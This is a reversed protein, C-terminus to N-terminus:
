VRNFLMESETSLSSIVEGNCSSDQNLLGLRYSDTRKLLISKVKKYNTWRGIEPDSLRALVNKAANEDAQYVDGSESYFQDGRRIGTFCRTRHDIQSTYSANVLQLSSSRRRSVTNLAEAIVGKTWVSLKRNMNKGFSRSSMPATLDEAVITRAKDILRHTATFILTRLAKQIKVKRSGLKKRGFNNGIIRAKKAPDSEEAIQFLKNRAQYKAKLYDSEKSIVDGLGQGYHVGDSDVFVETFGKDIGVVETGCNDTEEVNVVYHVEVKDSRLIIRLTGSPEINSSLPIAIRKGKVLGPISIWANGNRQFTMYNDSRVIIQNHTHNHGRKWYKRMIRALYKGTTWKNFKLLTYLRKQEAEDSTRRKIAQRAKVKASERNMSIDAIADRLTEKWANASLPSFDHGDKLWQDRIDRDRLGIGSVSGFRQWVESRVQGLLEAQRLLANYKGQNLDKSYAIKTIKMM